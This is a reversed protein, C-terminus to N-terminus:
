DLRRLAARIPHGDAVCAYAFDLDQEALHQLSAVSRIAENIVREVIQRFRRWHRQPAPLRTRTPSSRTAMLGGGMPLPTPQRLISHGPFEIRGDTALAKKIATSLEGALVLLVVM